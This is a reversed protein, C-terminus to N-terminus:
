EEGRDRSASAAQQETELAQRYTSYNGEFLRLHALGQRDAHLEAIVNVRELLDRDHSIILAPCPLAELAAFLQAKAASDLNNTPEDLLIFEPDSIMLSALAAIVAEGGSFSHM